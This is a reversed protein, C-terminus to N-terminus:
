FGGKIWVLPTLRRQCPSRTLAFLALEFVEVRLVMMFNVQQEAM